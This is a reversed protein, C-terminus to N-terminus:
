FYLKKAKPDRGLFQDMYKPSTVKLKDGIIKTVKSHETELAKDENYTDLNFPIGNVYRSEWFDEPNM